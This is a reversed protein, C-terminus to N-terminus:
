RREKSNEGDQETSVLASFVLNRLLYIKNKAYYSIRSLKNM